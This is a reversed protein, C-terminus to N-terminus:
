AGHPGFWASPEDFVADARKKSNSKSYAGCSGNSAALHIKATFLVCLCLHSRQAKRYNDDNIAKELGVFMCGLRPAIQWGNTTTLYSNGLIFACRYLPLKDGLLDFSCHHLNVSTHLISVFYSFSSFPSSFKGLCISTLAWQYSYIYLLEGRWLCPPAPRAHSCLIFLAFLSFVCARVYAPGRRM